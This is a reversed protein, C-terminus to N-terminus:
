MYLLSVQKSYIMSQKMQQICAYSTYVVLFLPSPCSFSSSFSLLSSSITIHRHEKIATVMMILLLLLLLPLLFLMM